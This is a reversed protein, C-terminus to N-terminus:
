SGVGNLRQATRSVRQMSFCFHNGKRTRDSLERHFGFPMTMFYVIRDDSRVEQPRNRLLRVVHRRHFGGVAVFEDLIRSKEPREGRAYRNTVAKVLEDRTATGVLRTGPRERIAETLLRRRTTSAASAPNLTRETTSRLSRRMNANSRTPRLPTQPETPGCAM